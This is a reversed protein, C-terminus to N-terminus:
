GHSTSRKQRLDHGGDGGGERGGGERGEGGGGGEGLAFGLDVETDGVRGSVHFVPAASAVSLLLLFILECARSM